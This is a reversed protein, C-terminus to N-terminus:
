SLTSDTQSSQTEPDIFGKEIDYLIETVLERMKQYKRDHALKLVTRLIKKVGGIHKFNIFKHFEAKDDEKVTHYEDEITVKTTSDVFHENIANLNNVPDSKIFAECYRIHWIIKWATDGPAGEWLARRADVYTTMLDKKMDPIDNVIGKIRKLQKKIKRYYRWFSVGIGVLVVLTFVGALITFLTQQHSIISEFYDTGIGIDNVLTSLSDVQHQLNAVTISDAVAQPPQPIM